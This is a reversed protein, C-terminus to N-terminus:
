RSVRKDVECNREIVGISHFAANGDVPWIYPFASPKRSNASEGGGGFTKLEDRVQRLARAFDKVKSHTLHVGDPVTWKCYLKGHCVSLSWHGFRSILAHYLFCASKSCGIARPAPSFNRLLYHMVFQVEAHVHLKRGGAPDRCTDPMADCRAMIVSSFLPQYSQRRVLKAFDKCVGYYRGLKDVQRVAARGAFDLGPPGCRRLKEELTRLIETVFANYVALVINRFTERLDKSDYKM